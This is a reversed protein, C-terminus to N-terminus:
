KEIEGFLEELPKKFLGSLKFALDLRIGKAGTEMQNYMVRSIGLEQAVQAQTYGKIKRHKRLNERKNNKM